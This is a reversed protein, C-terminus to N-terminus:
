RQTERMMMGKIMTLLCRRKGLRTRSLPFFISYREREREIETEIDRQREAEIRNEKKKKTIGEIGTM